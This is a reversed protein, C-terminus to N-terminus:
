SKLWFEDTSMNILLIYLLEPSRELMQIHGGCM